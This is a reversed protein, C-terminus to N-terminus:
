VVPVFLNENHFDAFEQFIRHGRVTRLEGLDLYIVGNEFEAHHNPCVIVINAAIDPGLHPNGLPQLHHAECTWGEESRPNRIRNGCVQCRFAHLRKLMIVLEKDRVARLTKSSAFEPAYNGRGDVSRKPLRHLLPDSPELPTDTKILGFQESPLRSSRSVYECIESAYEDRISEEFEDPSMRFVPSALHVRHEPQTLLEWTSAM